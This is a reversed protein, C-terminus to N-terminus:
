MIEQTMCASRKWKHINFFSFLHFLSLVSTQSKCAAIYFSYLSHHRNSTSTIPLTPRRCVIDLTRWWRKCPYYRGYYFSILLEFLYCFVFYFTYCSQLSTSNKDLRKPNTWKYIVTQMNIAYDIRCDSGVSQAM